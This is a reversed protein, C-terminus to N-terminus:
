RRYSTKQWKGRRLKGNEDLENHRVLWYSYNSKLVLLDDRPNSFENAIKTAMKKIETATAGDFSRGYIQGSYVIAGVEM